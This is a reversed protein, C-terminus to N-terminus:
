VPRKLLRFLYSRSIKYSRRISDFPEGADYRRIIDRNRESRLASVCMPVYITTAKCREVLRMAADRGIAEALAAWMHSNGDVVLPIRLEDGGYMKVLDITADLGIIEILERATAPLQEVRAADRLPRTADFLDLQDESAM